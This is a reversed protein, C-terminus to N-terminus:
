AGEDEFLVSVHSARISIPAALAHDKYRLAKPDLMMAPIDANKDLVLDHGIRMGNPLKVGEGPTIFYGFDTQVIMYDVGKISLNNDVYPGEWRAPYVINMSGIENGVFGDKKVTLFNIPNKQYDFGIIDCTRDIREFIAALAVVDQAIQNGVAQKTKYYISIATVVFLISLVIGVIWAIMSYGTHNNTRGYKM